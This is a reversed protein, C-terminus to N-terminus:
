VKQGLPKKQHLDSLFRVSNEDEGIQTLSTLFDGVSMFFLNPLNRLAEEEISTRHKDWSATM